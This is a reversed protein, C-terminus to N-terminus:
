SRNNNNGADGTELVAETILNKSFECGSIEVLDNENLLLSTDPVIQSGLNEFVLCSKLNKLRLRFFLFNLLFRGALLAHVGIL